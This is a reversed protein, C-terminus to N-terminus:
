RFLLMPLHCSRIMESTTSGIFLNRFRSHRYAGMLLMEVGQTGIAEQIAVEPQEDRLQADVTYGAKELEAKGKELTARNAETDTGAFLLLCELGAFVKSQAVHKLAKEASASGDYAIMFKNIPRFERTTVLVPKTSARVARELNSGLHMKAFDAAEGRKGVIVVDADAEEKRMEEVLDGNRLRTVVETVGDERIRKEADELIARGHEMSLKAKKADLDALEEMLKSRAGLGINGSLNSTSGERRGIVHLLEVTSGKRLAVWAAHDCVSESYVSGDVLAIIKSM